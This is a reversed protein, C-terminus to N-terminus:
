NSKSKSKQFEEVSPRATKDEVELEGSYWYSVMTVWGGVVLKGFQENPTMLTFLALWALVCGVYQPHSCGTNYPFGEIWPIPRGMQAGYNVGNVGLVNYVSLNLLQGAVLCAFVLSDFPRLEFTGDFLQLIRGGDVLYLYALLEWLKFMGVIYHTFLVGHLGFKAAVSMVKEPHNWVIWYQIPSVFMSLMFFYVKFEFIFGYDHFPNSGIIMFLSTLTCYLYFFMEM